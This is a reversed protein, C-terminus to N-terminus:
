AFFLCACLATLRVTYSIIGVGFGELLRGMYLFTTDKASSIALWGLINPIAAIMLAAKHGVHEVMQGSAIAGAMAGINSLSGFVSFQIYGADDTALIGAWALSAPPLLLCLRAIPSLIIVESISLSLDRTIADQTPSSFGGTFGFQIPGLAVILTCLLASVHSERMMAMSSAGSATLSSGMRYWSGTNVLLPKRMDMDDDGGGNGNMAGAPESASPRALPLSPSSSSSTSKSI